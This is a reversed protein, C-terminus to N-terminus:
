QPQGGFLEEVGSRILQGPVACLRTCRVEARVRRTVERDGEFKMCIGKIVDPVGSRLNMSLSRYQGTTKDIM